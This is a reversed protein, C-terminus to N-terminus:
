RQLRKYLEQADPNGLAVAAQVNSTCSEKDGSALEVLALNYHITGREKPSPASALARNLGARADDHRGLRYLITGRNLAADTFRTNLQLAADYDAMAEDLRGLAQFALGQNYRCEASAPALAISVRFANVAEEFRKLRYACLGEYFNLWFDQPRLRLGVRFERWALESDGSRLYSKGMDLHEWATRVPLVGSRGTTDLRLARASTVFERELAPGTGLLSKADSLVRVVEQRALLSENPLAFRVRLVAWLVLVDLLDTRTRAVIAAPEGGALPEILDHRGEWIKRGLEVLSRAEELPPLVLGYRFRILEALQHLEDLKSGRAARAFERALADRPRAFGPVQKALSLGRKFADSADAFQQRDLFIRGQALAHDIDRIRQRYSLGVSAAAVLTSGVLGIFILNRSLAVPKRRRWKRWRETLSRNPVGRLPLNGLHRRLDNALTSAEHYRDCPFRKLCKQVIDSLGLSVRPNLHDLPPLSEVPLEARRGGLAEYMLVGLSFIDARRDVAERVSRGERVAAVVGWQESSIYGPTGGAWGPPPAGQSIPAHALHFDLLMPQGDAALLVNSPKVDMHLLEREHAYQLGDALCAGILCIAEVYSAHAIFQRMPGKSQPSTPLTGQFQDLAELLLTGSRECPPRDKLFDLVQALTAGGLFPMCLVQLNRDQLVHESYLLVINMHQLRALSLHEERGRATIKLVVPRDALSPQVALFVCGASGRGLERELRFGALDDGPRPFNANGFPMGEIVQQCNLLVRLEQQWQPFRRFFHAPDVDLGLERRLCAEEYILRIAADDSLEPHRALFDEALPREGRRWAAVMEDVQQTALSGSPDVFQAISPFPPAVARNGASCPVSQHAFMVM